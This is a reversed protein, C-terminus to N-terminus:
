LWWFYLDAHLIIHILMLEQFVWVCSHQQLRQLQIKMFLYCVPFGHHYGWPPLGKIRFFMLDVESIERFSQQFWLFYFILFMEWLPVVMCFLLIFLVSRKWTLFLLNHVKSRLPGTLRKFFVSMNWFLKSILYSSM